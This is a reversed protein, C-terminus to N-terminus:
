VQLYFKVGVGFRPPGSSSLDRCWKVDGLVISPPWPCDRRGLCGSRCEAPYAELRVMITAGQVPAQTCEFCAGRISFNRMQGAHTEPKNFYTWAVPSRCSLRDDLRKEESREM